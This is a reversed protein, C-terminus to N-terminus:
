FSEPALGERLQASIGDINNLADEIIATVQEQSMPSTGMERLLWAPTPTIATTIKAAERRLEAVLRRTETKTMAM